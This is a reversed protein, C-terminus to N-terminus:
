LQLGYLNKLALWMSGKSVAQLGYEGVASLGIM